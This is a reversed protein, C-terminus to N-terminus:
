RGFLREEFKSDSFDDEAAIRWARRIAHGLIWLMPQLHLHIRSLALEEGSREGSQFMRTRDGPFGVNTLVADSSHAAINRVDHLASSTEDFEASSLGGEEEMMSDLELNRVLRRWRKLADPNHSPPECLSELACALHLVREAILFDSERECALRFARSSSLLSRASHRERAIGLARFPLSLDSKSAPLRWMGFSRITGSRSSGTAGHMRKAPELRQGRRIWPKPVWNGISPSAVGSGQPALVCWAALAYKAEVEARHEAILDPGAQLSIIAASQRTDIPGGSSQSAFWRPRADSGNGFKKLISFHNTPEDSFREDGRDRSALALATKENIDIWQADDPLEINAVPTTVVWPGSNAIQKKLEGILEGLTLEHEAAELSRLVLSKAQMPGYFSAFASPDAEAIERVVRDLSLWDAEQFYDETPRFPRTEGPEFPRHEEAQADAVAARLMALNDSEVRDTM